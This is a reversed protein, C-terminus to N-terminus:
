IENMYRMAQKKEVRLLCKMMEMWWARQPQEVSTYVESWARGKAKEEEKWGEEMGERGWWIEREDRGERGKRYVRVFALCLLFAPLCAVGPYRSNCYVTIM